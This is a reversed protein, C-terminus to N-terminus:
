GRWLLAAHKSVTM